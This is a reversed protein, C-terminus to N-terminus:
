GGTKRRRLLVGIGIALALSGALLVGLAARTVVLLGEARPVPGPQSRSPPPPTGGADGITVVGAQVLAPIEAGNSGANLKVRDFTVSATGAGVVKMSVVFLEGDGSLPPEAVCGIRLEGPRVLQHEVLGTNLPGNEVGVFELRSADYTLTAEITGLDAAREVIIPIRAVAGVVAQSSPIRITIDGRAPSAFACLLATGVTVLIFRPM